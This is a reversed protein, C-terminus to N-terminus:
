FRGFCDDPAKKNQKNELNRGSPPAKMEKRTSKCIENCMHIPYSNAEAYVYM